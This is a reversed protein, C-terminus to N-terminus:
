SLSVRDMAMLVKIIASSIIIALLEMIIGSNTRSNYHFLSDLFNTSYSISKGTKIVNIECSNLITNWISPYGVSIRRGGKVVQIQM